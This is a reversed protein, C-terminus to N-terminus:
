EDCVKVSNINIYTKNISRDELMHCDIKYSIVDNYLYITASFTLELVKLIKSLFSIKIEMKLNYKKALKNIDNITRCEKIEKFLDM